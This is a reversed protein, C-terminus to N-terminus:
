APLEALANALAPLPRRWLWDVKLRFGDLVRSCYIGDQDAVSLHYRGDEGLLFFFADKRLPDFLWYEPIGAAEYEQLKDVRDRRESDPSLVEIVLDAPGDRYTSKVRDAHEAAIFLLDPERGSPRNPLRMLFPASFLRGLRRPVIYDALLWILFVVLDQHEAAAPAVLIVEGNVWEARGTEPDWAMFEDFTMRIPASADGRAPASGAEADTQPSPQLVDTM